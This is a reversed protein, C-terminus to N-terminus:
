RDFTDEFSTSEVDFRCHRSNDSLSARNSQDVIGFLQEHMECLMEM